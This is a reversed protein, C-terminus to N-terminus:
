KKGLAYSALVLCAVMWLSYFDFNGENLLSLSGIFAIVTTAWVFYNILKM